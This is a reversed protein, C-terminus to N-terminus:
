ELFVGTDGTGKETRGDRKGNWAFAGTFTEVELIQPGRGDLLCRVYGRKLAVSYPSCSSIERASGVM